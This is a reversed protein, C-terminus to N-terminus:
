QGLFQQLSAVRRPGIWRLFAEDIPLNYSYMPDPPCIPRPPPCGISPNICIPPEIPEPDVVIPPYCGEEYPAQTAFTGGGVQAADEDTVAAEFICDLDHLDGLNLSFTRRM